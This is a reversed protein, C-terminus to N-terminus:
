IAKRKLREQVKESTLERLTDSGIWRQTNDASSKLKESLTVAKANLYLNRKGIQRILWNVAKKVFNREDTSYSEAIELFSEIYQNHAKKNHITIAILMVLGTRRVFEEERNCWELAIEFGGEMKSFLGAANDVLDWSYFTKVWNEADNKSLSESDAILPALMKIEHIPHFACQLALDHNKGIHKALKKIEPNRIGLANEANIGFRSYKQAFDPNSIKTFYNEIEPITM